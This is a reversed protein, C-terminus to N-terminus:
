SVREIAQEREFPSWPAAATVNWIFAITFMLIAEMFSDRELLSTETMNHGVAFVFLAILLAGRQNTPTRSLILRLLPWLVVMAIIVVLGPLGISVLLDLFGNHGAGLTLLWDRGYRYIPSVTGINWFSGYGSGLMRHDASYKLLTTWIYSRGTFGRPDNLAGSFPHRYINVFIAGCLALFSVGVLVLVRYRNDYRLYLFGVAVGAAVMGLSTKSKSLVLFALAAAIVLARLAPRIARADFAFLLITIACSAGANNKHMMIGRWDGILQYDAPENAQHIGIQPWGLVALFNLILTVVLIVRLVSVTPGYGLEQVAAFITWIVVSTLVLRRVGVGPDIAWTLSLLCFLLAIVVPLPVALLRRPDAVPRIGYAVLGAAALYAGQRVPNGEGTFPLDSLSMLPGLIVLVMLAIMGGILAGRRPAPGKGSRSFQGGADFDSFRPAPRTGATRPRGTGRPISSKTPQRM